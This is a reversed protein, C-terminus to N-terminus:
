SPKDFLIRVVIEPSHFDAGKWSVRYIGPEKFHNGLDVGFQLSEGPSIARLRTDKSASILISGSYALEKGNIVIRSEVIRPDIESEGDNVLTFEIRLDKTQGLKFVPQKVGLAAWLAGQREELISQTKPQNAAALIASSMSAQAARAEALASEVAMRQMNARARVFWVVPALFLACLAVAIMLTRISLRSGRHDIIGTM